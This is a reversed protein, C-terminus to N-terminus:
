LPHWPLVAWGQLVKCPPDRGIKGDWGLKKEEKFVTINNLYVARKWGGHRAANNRRSLIDQRDMAEVGGSAWVWLKEFSVEWGAVWPVQMDPQGRELGRDAAWRSNQVPWNYFSTVQLGQIFYLHHTRPCSPGFATLRCTRFYKRKRFMCRVEWGVGWGLDLLSFGPNM